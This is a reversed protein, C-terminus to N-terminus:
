LHNSTKKVVPLNPKHGQLIMLPKKKNQKHSMMPLPKNNKNLKKMKKRSLLQNGKMLLMLIIRRQHFIMKQILFEDEPDKDVFIGQIVEQNYGM